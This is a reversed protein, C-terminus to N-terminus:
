RKAGANLGGEGVWASGLVSCKQKKVEVMKAACRPSHEVDRTFPDLESKMAACRKGCRRAQESRTVLFSTEKM